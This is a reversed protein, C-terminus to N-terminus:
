LGSGRFDLPRTNAVLSADSWKGKKTLLNVAVVWWDCMPCRELNVDLLRDEVDEVPFDFDFRDMAQEISNCTGDLYEAIANIQKDTIKAM